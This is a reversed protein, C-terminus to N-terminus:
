VGMYDTNYKWSCVTHWLNCDLKFDIDKGYLKNIITREIVFASLSVICTAAAIGLVFNNFVNSISFTLYAAYVYILLIVKEQVLLYM